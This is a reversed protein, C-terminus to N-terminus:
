RRPMRRPRRVKFKEMGQSLYGVKLARQNDIKIVERLGQALGKEQKVGLNTVINQKLGDGDEQQNALLKLADILNGSFARLYQMRKSSRPRILVKVQKYLWSGTQNSGITNKEM